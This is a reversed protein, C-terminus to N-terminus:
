PLDAVKVARFRMLMDGAADRAHGDIHDGNGLRGEFRVRYESDQRGFMVRGSKHVKTTTDVTVTDGDVAYTGLSHHEASAARYGGDEIFATAMPEWGYPALLEIVWIGNLNM